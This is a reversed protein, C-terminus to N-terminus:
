MLLFFGRLGCLVRLVPVAEHGLQKLFDVTKPSVGANAPFRM